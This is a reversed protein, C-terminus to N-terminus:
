SPTAMKILSTVTVQKQCHIHTCTQGRVEWCDRIYMYTYMIYEVLKIICTCAKVIVIFTMYCIITNGCDTLFNTGASFVTVLKRVNDKIMNM